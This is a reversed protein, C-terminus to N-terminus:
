FPPIGPGEQESLQTKGVQRDKIIQNLENLVSETQNIYRQQIDSRVRTTMEKSLANAFALTSDVLTRLDPTSLYQYAEDIDDSKKVLSTDAYAKEVVPQPANQSLGLVTYPNKRGLIDEFVKDSTLESFLDAFLQTPESQKWALAQKQKEMLRDLSIEPDTNIRRQNELLAFDQQLTQSDNRYNAIKQNMYENKSREFEQLKARYVPDYIATGMKSALQTKRAADRDQWLVFPKNAEYKVVEILADNYSKTVDPQSSRQVFWNKVRPALLQLEATIDSLLKGLTRTQDPKIIPKERLQSLQLTISSLKQNITDLNLQDTDIKTRIKQTKSIEDLLDRRAEAAAEKKGQAEAKNQTGLLDKIREKSEKRERELKKQEDDIRKKELELKQKELTLEQSKERIDNQSYLPDLVLCLTLAIFFINKKM